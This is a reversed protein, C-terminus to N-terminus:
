YLFLCVGLLKLRMAREEEDQEAYKDKIKNIKKAKGRPLNGKV